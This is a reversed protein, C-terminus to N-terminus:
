SAIWVNFFLINAIGHLHTPADALQWRPYFIKVQAGLEKMKVSMLENAHHAGTAIKKENHIFAIKPWGKSHRHEATSKDPNLIRIFSRAVTYAKRHSSGQHNASM